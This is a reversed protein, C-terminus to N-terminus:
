TEDFADGPLETLGRVAIARVHPWAIAQIEYTGDSAQAAFLGHTKSSRSESWWDPAFTSGDDLKLEVEGQHERERWLWAFLQVISQPTVTPDLPVAVPSTEQPRRSAAFMPLDIEEIEELSIDEDDNTAAQPRGLREEPRAAGAATPTGVTM